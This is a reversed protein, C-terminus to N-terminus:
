ADGKGVEAEDLRRLLMSIASLYESAKVRDELKVNTHARPNRIGIFTGMFLFRFGEQEDKEASTKNENFKIIPNKENLVENVLMKGSKEVKSKNKLEMELVKCAEFIAQSYHGNQFLKLGAQRIKEHVEPFTFQDLPETASAPRNEMQKVAVSGTVEVTKPTITSHTNDLVLHYRGTKDTKFFIPGWRIKSSLFTNWTLNAVRRSRKRAEYYKKYNRENEKDLIYVQIDDSVNPLQKVKVDFLFIDDESDMDFDLIASAGPPIQLTEKIQQKEIIGM